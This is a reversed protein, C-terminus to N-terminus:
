RLFTFTAASSVVSAYQSDGQKTAVVTLTGASSATLTSGTITGVGTGGTIVYSVAGTSSGGLTSLAISQGLAASANVATVSLPAQATSGYFTFNINQSNIASYTGDSAKTARVLCNGFTSRTLQNGVVVCTPNYDIETFTYSTGNTLGSVTCSTLSENNTTCTRGGPFATVTYGTITYGNNGGNTWSVSANTNGPTATVSTPALPTFVWSITLYANASASPSYSGLTLSAGTLGSFNSTSTGAAGGYGLTEGCNYLSYGGGAGGVLGGGNGGGGGGDGTANWAAAGSTGGAGGSTINDGANRARQCNDGGGGAGGGGVVITGFAGNLVSGAGGGGGGGSCGSPGANGGNSGSYNGLSLSSYNGNGGAGGGSNTVCGSGGSGGGGIGVKLTAGPTVNITGTIKAVTSSPTGGAYGDNGGNGGQAGYFAITVSSVNSPVTWTSAGVSSIMVSNASVASAASPAIVQILPAILLLAFYSTFRKNFGFLVVDQQQCSENIAGFKWTAIAWVAEFELSALRFSCFDVL